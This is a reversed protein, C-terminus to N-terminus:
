HCRDAYKPALIKFTAMNQDTMGQSDGWTMRRQGCFAFFYLLRLQGFGNNLNPLKSAYQIYLPHVSLQLNRGILGSNLNHTNVTKGEQGQWFTVAQKTRPLLSSCQKRCAARRHKLRFNWKPMAWSTPWPGTGTNEALLSVPMLLVELALNWHM